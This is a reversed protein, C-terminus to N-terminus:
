RSFISTATLVSNDAEDRAEMALFALTRARRSTWASVALHSGPGIASPGLQMQFTSPTPATMSGDGAGILLLFAREAIKAAHSLQLRGKADLMEAGVEVAFRVGGDVDAEIM